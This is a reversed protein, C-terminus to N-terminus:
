KNRLTQYIMEKLGVLTNNMERDQKIREEQIQADREFKKNMTDNFGKIIDKYDKERKDQYMLFIIVLVVSGGLDLFPKLATIDM